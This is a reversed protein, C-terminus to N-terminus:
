NLDNKKKKSKQRKEERIDEKSREKIEKGKKIKSRQIIPSLNPLSL